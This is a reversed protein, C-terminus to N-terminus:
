EIAMLDRCKMTHSIVHRQQCVVRNGRSKQTRVSRKESVRHGHSRSAGDNAQIRQEQAGSELRGVHIYTHIYIWMVWGYKHCSESTPTVHSMRVHSMVWKYTIHNRQIQSIVCEYTHCSAGACTVHSMWTHYSEDMDREYAPRTANKDNSTVCTYTPRSTKARPVHSMRIYTTVRIHSIAREYTHCSANMHTVCSARSHTVDCMCVIWMVCVFLYIHSRGWEYAHYWENLHTDDGMRTSAYANMSPFLCEPTHCSVHSTPRACVRCWGAVHCSENMHAVDCWVWTMYCARIDRESKNLHAVMLSDLHQHSKMVTCEFRM